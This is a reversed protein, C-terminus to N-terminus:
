RKLFSSLDTGIPVQKTEKNKEFIRAYGVGKLKMQHDEVRLISGESIAIVPTDNMEHFERIRDDRTEGGYPIYSGESEQIFTAGSFYHPNIQFPVLGLAEFSDPFVIPMDNTTKISLGAMNSGASVGIYPVGSRIRKRIPEMLKQDNLTKTLRFTNGGYVSIVKASEVADLPSSFTHIGVSKASGHYPRESIRALAADYDNVAYPIFLVEDCNGLFDAVESAWAQKREPTSM